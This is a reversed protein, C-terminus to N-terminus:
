AHPGGMGFGPGYRNDGPQTPMCCSIILLLLTALYCLDGVMTLGFLEFFGAPPADSNPLTPALAFLRSMAWYTGFVFPLPVIGWAAFRLLGRLHNGILGM